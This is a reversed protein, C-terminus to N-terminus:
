KGRYKGSGEVTVGASRPMFHDVAAQMGADLTYRVLYTLNPVAVNAKRCENRIEEFRSRYDVGIDLLARSEGKTM